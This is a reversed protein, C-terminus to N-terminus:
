YFNLRSSVPCVSVNVNGFRKALSSALIMSMAAIISTVFFVSGLKGEELNYHSRFFYTVWSLPALGSSFSDLAFLICLSIMVKVSEDSIEPLLARVGRRENVPKPAAEGELLPTTESASAAVPQKKKEVEVASSLMAALILKVLGLVTYGWFVMRYAKVIDWGLDLHLHHIVWGCTVMGLATGAAGFLSYWAYVDSRERSSTLHAIVSEEIARFPGIENGSDCRETLSVCARARVLRIEAVDGTSM